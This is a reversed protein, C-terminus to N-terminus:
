LTVTTKRFVASATMEASATVDDEDTAATADHGDSGESYRDHLITSLSCHFQEPRSM